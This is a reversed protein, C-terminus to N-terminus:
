EYLAERSLNEHTLSIGCDRGIGRVLTEWDADVAPPTQDPSPHYKESLAALILAEPSTGREKALNALIAEWPGSLHITM